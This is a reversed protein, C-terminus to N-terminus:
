NLAKPNQMAPAPPNQAVEGGDSPPPMPAPGMDQPPAGPGPPAGSGPGMPPPPPPPMLQAPDMFKRALLSWGPLMAFKMLSPPEPTFVLETKVQDSMYMVHTMLHDYAAAQAPPPLNRYREEQMSPYLEKYHEEHNDTELVQAPQGTMLADNELMQTRGPERLRRQSRSTSGVNLTDSVDQPTYIGLKLFEVANATQQAKTDGLASQNQLRVDYTSRLAMSDLKKFVYENEPGLMKVILHNESRAFQAYAKWALNMADVLFSNNKALFSNYRENEEQKLQALAVGSMDAKPAAGGSVPHLGALTRMENALEQIYQFIEPNTSAFTILKPEMAGPQVPLVGPMNRLHKKNISGVEVLWKPHSFLRQNRNIYYRLDNIRRQIPLILSYFSVGRNWDDIEIDKLKACPIQGHEYELKGESLICETTALIQYGGAVLETDRHWFEIVTTHDGFQAQKGMYSDWHGGKDPEIKDAYDPHNAKLTDTAEQYTRIEWDGLRGFPRPEPFTKSVGSVEFEIDGDRVPRQIEFPKGKGISELDDASAPQVMDITTPAVGDGILSQEKSIPGANPNWLPYLSCEGGLKAARVVRQHILDFKKNYLIGDIIQKVTQANIIDSTDNPNEPVVAFSPKFTTIRSVYEETFEHAYNTTLRDDVPPSGQVNYTKEDYEQRTQGKGVSHGLYAAVNRQAEVACPKYFERCFYFANKLWGHRDEPPKNTQTHFPKPPKRSSDAAYEADSM